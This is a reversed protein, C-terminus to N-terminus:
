PRCQLCDCVHRDLCTVCRQEEKYAPVVLSLYVSPEADMGEVHVGRTNAAPDAPDLFAEEGPCRRVDAQKATKVLYLALQAPILVAFSKM